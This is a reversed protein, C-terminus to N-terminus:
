PELTDSADTARTQADRAAPTAVAAERHGVTKSGLSVVLSTAVIGAVAALFVLVYGVAYSVPSIGVEIASVFMLCLFFLIWGRNIM